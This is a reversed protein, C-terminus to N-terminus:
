YQELSSRWQNYGDFLKRCADEWVYKKFHTAYIPFFIEAGIARGVEEVLRYLKRWGLGAKYIRYQLFKTPQTKTLGEFSILKKHRKVRETVSVASQFCLPKHM